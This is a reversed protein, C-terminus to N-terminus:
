VKVTKRNDQNLNISKNLRKSLRRGLIMSPVEILKYSLYAVPICLFPVLCFTFWIPTIKSLFVTTM